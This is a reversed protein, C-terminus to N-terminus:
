RYIDGGINLATGVITGYSYNGDTSLFIVTDGNVRYTGTKPSFSLGLISQTQVIYNGDGFNYITTLYDRGFDTGYRRSTNRLNGLNNGAQRYLNALREQEARRTQEQQAQRAEAQAAREAEAVARKAAEAEKRAVIAQAEELSLMTPFEIRDLRYYLDANPNAPDKPHVSLYVTTDIDKEEYLVSVPYLKNVTEEDFIIYDISSDGFIYDIFFRCCVEFQGDRLYSSTTILKFGSGAQYKAPDNSIGRRSSFVDVEKYTVEADPGGYPTSAPASACGILISVFVMVVTLAIIGFLKATNKM